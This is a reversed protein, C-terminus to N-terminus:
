AANAQKVDISQYHLYVMGNRFRREDQLALGLRVDSPIAFTGGGVIIPSVFLDCVDVLGARFAHAALTPGGISIDRAASDKMQQVAAPEFHKELQTQPTSAEKLTSSYVVKDAARWLNAFDAIYAPQDDTPITQWASMVEYIRRGYLYTGVGRELENVFYHVEEDPEAWDFNGNKDAIYGDLSTIVSYILNAM